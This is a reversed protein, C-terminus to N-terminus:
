KLQSRASSLLTQKVAIIKWAQCILHINVIKDFTKRLLVLQCTTNALRSLDTINQHKRVRRYTDRWIGRVRKSQQIGIQNFELGNM